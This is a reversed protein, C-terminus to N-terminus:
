TDLPEISLLRAAEQPGGARPETRDGTRTPKESDPTSDTDSM